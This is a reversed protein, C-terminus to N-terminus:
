RPCRAAAAPLVSTWPADAVITGAVLSLAADLAPERAGQRRLAAAARIAADHALLAWEDPSEGFRACWERLLADFGPGARVGVWVGPTRPDSVAPAADDRVSVDDGMAARADLVSRVQNRPNRLARAVALRPERGLDGVFVRTVGERRPVLAGDFTTDSASVGSQLLADEVAEALSYSSAPAIVLARPSRSNTVVARTIAEARAATTPTAVNIQAGTSEIAPADALLFVPISLSQGRIAASSAFEGRTPGLVARAGQAFLRDTAAASQAPDAGEDEIAIRLNPVRELALQAGRLVSTGIAARPGSLPIIVGVVSTSSAASAHTSQMARDDPLDALWRLYRSIENRSRAIDLLRLALPRRLTSGAESQDISETLARPEAVRAAVAEVLSARAVPDECRLGTRVWPTGATEAREVTALARTIARLAASPDEEVAACEALACAMEVTEAADPRARELPTLLRRADLLHARHDDTNQARAADRADLVGHAIDRQAALEPDPRVDVRALELRAADLQDRAILVRVLLLRASQALPEARFRAIVERLAAEADALSRPTAEFALRRAAALQTDLAVDRSVLRVPRRTSPSAGCASAFALTASLLGM